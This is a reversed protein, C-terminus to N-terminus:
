KLLNNNLGLAYYKIGHKRVESSDLIRWCDFVGKIAKKKLYLSSLEKFEEWPTAIICIESENICEDISSCYTVQGGLIYHAKNLGAPDYISVKNGSSVLVSAIALSASEEIIDTNPKYTIGLISIKDTKKVLSKVLNAVRNIQYRNVKDTIESLQAPCDLKKAIHLVARNDRPFCPGGFALGGKLYRLGIRSDLGIANTIDDVNGGPLRECLDAITNAFSIKMTVYSNFAIKALEANVSSMRRIPPNNECVKEYISSLIKGSKFDYEGILVFGPNTFDHIVSGLAIFEPSYCLGFDKGCKKRSEKELIPKIVNDITGPLITSTISVLHWKSKKRISKGIKELANELYETSYSGDALSPTNVVVFTVDTNQIAYNLDDTAELKSKGLTMKEQLMPEYVPAKAQNVLDITKKNIDVGIVHYDNTSFCSAICIGLKGIGVVSIKLM